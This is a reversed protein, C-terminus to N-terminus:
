RCLRHGRALLVGPVVRLFQVGASQEAQPLAVSSAMIRHQRRESKGVLDKIVLPHAQPRRKPDTLGRRLRGFSGLQRAIASPSEETEQRNANDSM